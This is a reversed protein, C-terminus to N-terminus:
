PAVDNLDTPAHPRETDGADAQKPAVPGVGQAASDGAQAPALDGNNAQADALKAQAPALDAQATALQDNAAALEKQADTVSTQTGQDLQNILADRSSFDNASAALAIALSLVRPLRLLTM